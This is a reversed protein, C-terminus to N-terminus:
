MAADLEGSQAVLASEHWEHILSEVDEFGSQTGLPLSAADLVESCLKEIDDKEFLKLWSFLASPERGEIVSKTEVLIAVVRTIQSVTKILVRPM